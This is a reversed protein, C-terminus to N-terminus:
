AISHCRGSDDYYVLGVGTVFGIVYYARGWRAAENTADQVMRKITDYNM